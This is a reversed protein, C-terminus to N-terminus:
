LMTSVALMNEHEFKLSCNARKEKLKIHDHFIIMM